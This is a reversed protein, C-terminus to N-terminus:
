LIIYRLVSTKLCFNDGSMGQGCIDTKFCIRDSSLPRLVYSTQLCDQGAFVRRFVYWRRDTETLSPLKEASERESSTGQDSINEDNDPDSDDGDRAPESQLSRNPAGLFTSQTLATENLDNVISKDTTAQSLFVIKPLARQAYVNGNTGGVM